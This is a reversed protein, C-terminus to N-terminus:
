REYCEDRNFKFNKDTEYNDKAFDLFQNVLNQKKMKTKQNIYSLLETLDSEFEAKVLLTCSDLTTAQYM